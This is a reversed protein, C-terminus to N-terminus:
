LETLQLSFVSLLTLSGQEYFHLHTKDLSHLQNNGQAYQGAKYRNALEKWYEESAKYTHRLFEGKFLQSMKDTEENM